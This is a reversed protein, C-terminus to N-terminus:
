QIPAQFVGPFRFGGGRFRWSRIGWARVTGAAAPVDVEGAEIEGADARLVGAEDRREALRRLPGGGAPEHDHGMVRGAKKRQRLPAPILQEVAGVGRSQGFENLIEFGQKPDM